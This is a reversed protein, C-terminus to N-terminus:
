VEATETNNSTLILEPKPILKKMEPKVLREFEKRFIPNREMLYQRLTITDPRNQHEFIFKLFAETSLHLNSNTAAFNLVAHCFEIAAIIAEYKLSGKFIRFEITRSNMLNIMEYRDDARNATSIKKSKAKCYGANYRRAVTEILHRNAQHNVFYVARAIQLNTLGERSVHVHLGCTGTLHSRLGETITPQNTWKWLERHIDLGMPQSIIEFGCDLSGDREFVLPSFSDVDPHDLNAEVYKKIGKAREIRGYSSRVEVELEVGFFRKNKRTWDSHYKSYNHRNSHYEGIITNDQYQEHEWRDTDDNWHFEDPPNQSDITVWNGYQDVAEAADDNPIWEESFESYTYHADRCEECIMSDNIHTSDEVLYWEDCDNCQFIHDCNSRFDEYIENLTEDEFYLTPVEDRYLFYRSMALRYTHMSWGVLGLFTIEDIQTMRTLSRTARYQWYDYLKEWLETGRATYKDTVNLCSFARWRKHYDNIDPFTDSYGEIYLLWERKMTIFDCIDQVSASQPNFQPENNYSM